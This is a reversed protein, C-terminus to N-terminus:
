RAYRHICFRWYSTLLEFSMHLVRMMPVLGPLFFSNLLAICLSIVMGCIRIQQMPEKVSETYVCLYDGLFSLFFEM